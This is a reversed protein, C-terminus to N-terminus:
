VGRHERHELVASELSFCCLVERHELLVAATAAALLGLMSPQWSILFLLFYCLLLLLNPVGAEPGTAAIFSSLLCSCKMGDIDAFDIDADDLSGM